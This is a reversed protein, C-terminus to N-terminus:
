RWFVSRWCSCVGALMWVVTPFMEPLWWV